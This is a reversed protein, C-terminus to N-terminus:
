TGVKRTLCTPNRNISGCQQDLFESLRRITPYDFFWEVEIEMGCLEEIKRAFRLGILSDVGQEAFTMTLSIERRDTEMLEALADSLQQERKTM